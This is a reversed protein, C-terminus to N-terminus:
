HLTVSSLRKRRLSKNREGIASRDSTVNEKRWQSTRSGHISVRVSGCKAPMNLVDFLAWCSNLFAERWATSQSQRTQKNSPFFLKKQRTHQDTRNTQRSVKLWRCTVIKFRDELFKVLHHLQHDSLIRNITSMLLDFARWRGLTLLKKLNKLDEIKIPNVQFKFLM